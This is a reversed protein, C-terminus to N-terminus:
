FYKNILPLLDVSKVPKSLYDDCGAKRSDEKEIEGAYATLAIVPLNKRLSKISKTATYGDMLPMKVDMLVLDINKDSRCIEVAEQGNKVWILQVCTNTLVEKIFSYNNEDDEAILIVKDKWLYITRGSIDKTIKDTVDIDERVSHVPKYPLTFYFTSGKGLESEAWIEGGLLKVLNKSITLGLGAGEYLKVKQDEIKHFREFIFDKKNEPFGIGTDKVYFRLMQSGEVTYGTEIYGSDTYKLANDLLNSLVQKLRYPDTLIKFDEGSIAKNLCIEINEKGKKHKQEEFFSCLETLIKNVSTEAVKIGLQGAEIKSSDIIDDILHLLRDGSERIRPIFENRKEDTIGPDTLLSSFGLLANMPTRIEHSMNALFASKLKNAEEAQEKALILENEMIKRETIDRSIGCTGIINGEYDYLPLKSTTVWTERGDPWIEKEEKNVVALGTKIIEQEDKFSQSAHEGTFIDFDTKGMAESPDKLGFWKAMKKNIRLFRSQKDKFYINDPSNDILASLLEKERALKLEAEKNETIDTFFGINCNRNDILIKSSNINTYIITGDKRLCPLGYALTKEGRAQAEFESIVHELSDKPHIDVVSMGEFEKKTYGLMKCIAPNAYSFKRTELDAFLIGEPSGEFLMKYKEESKRFADEAQRHKEELNISYLAFSIDGAVEYLLDHEEKDTKLDPSLKITLFGLIDGDHELRITMSERYTDKKVIPCDSCEPKQSSALVIGTQKLAEQCCHALKGNEINKIFLSFEKGIGKSAHNLLNMNEDFLLIWASDYGRVSVLSSCISKILKETDKERVILQNVNRISILVKNVHKLRLTRGEIIEELKKNLTKLEDRTSKLKENVQILERNKQISNEYTSLLLDLIQLRDSNVYYKKNAFFIEIGMESLREKRLEKNRLINHIRSLLYKENYPKTIFNDAGCELGKIVDASDSLVTLLIVPIGKLQDDTKIAKCLEYGNIEPMIIDSIILLPRERRTMDFADKGNRGHLVRYGNKTLIHKLHEAQTPSDEAIVILNNNNKKM